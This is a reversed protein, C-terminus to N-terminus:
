ATCNRSGACVSPASGESAGPMGPGCAAQAAKVCGQILISPGTSLAPCPAAIGGAESQQKGRPVLAQEQHVRHCGQTAGGDVHILLTLTHGWCGLWCPEMFQDVGMTEAPRDPASIPAPM